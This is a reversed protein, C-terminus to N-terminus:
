KSGSPSPAGGKPKQPGGGEEPCRLETELTYKMRDDSIAKTRKTVTPNVFCRYTALQTAITEIDAGTSAIGQVIVKFGGQSLKSVELKEIDHKQPPATPILQSLQVMVDMADARPLPDEESSPAGGRSLLEDVRDPDATGEGFVDKTTSTLVQDLAARDANLNRARSWTAFLWTVLLAAGVGALMPVKEQIWGWGREFALPGRRLDLGRRRASAALAVGIARTFRHGDPRQLLGDIGHLQLVDVSMQLQGALWRPLDPVLAGGGTIFVGDPPTGGAARYAAFTSRIERALAAATQPMGQVGNSLTRAFVPEAGDLVVIESQEHGLDVIARVGPSRLEALVGALDALAFAGPVVHDPERAATSKVLDIRARVEEIRAAAVLVPQPQGNPVGPRARHDYVAEDIDFPLQAELEFPLVEVLRRRVNPPVELMRVFTHAGDFGVSLPDGGSAPERTAERMVDELTQVPAVAGGVHVSDPPPRDIAVLREIAWRRATGRLIAVKIQTAGVDIGVYRAM